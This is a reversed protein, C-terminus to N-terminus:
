RSVRYVRVSPKESRPSRLFDAVEVAQGKTILRSLEPFDELDRDQLIAYWPSPESASPVERIARKGLGEVYTPYFYPDFVAAAPEGHRAIWKGAELVGLYNQHLRRGFLSPLSVALSGAFVAGYLFLRARFQGRSGGARTRTGLFRGLQDVGYMGLGVVLPLAPLFYRGTMYGAQFELAGLLLWYVVVAVVPL